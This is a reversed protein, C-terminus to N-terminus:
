CAGLDTWVGWEGTTGPQENTTWWKAQWKHGNWSVQNGNVYIATAVWSPLTCAGSTPPTTTPTTPPTTTPTTPPTTTPTTPPTTTPTSTTGSCSGASGNTATVIKNFLTASSDLDLLSYMM